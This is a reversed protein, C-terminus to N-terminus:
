QETITVSEIITDESPTGSESGTAEIALVADMGDTVQGFLSYAPNLAVGAEGTVIFFQSGQTDPGSNAMALSGIQYAGEAPLEDAFEYGPGGTGAPVGVADGGQIMFGPIIRHFSVGDYFHHRALSVFNNVTQPAGAADLEITVTGKDTVVEAIYTKAPDICLDFPGDFSTLHEASGDAAPCPDELTTVTEEAVESGAVTELESDDNGTFVSVLFLVLLVAAAIAAIKAGRRVVDGKKEAARETEIRAARNAKQRERKDTGVTPFVLAM